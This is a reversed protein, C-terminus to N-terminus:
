KKFSATLARTQYISCATNLVQPLLSQLIGGYSNSSAEVTQSQKQLRSIENELFESKKAFGQELLAVKEKMTSEMTKELEKIQNEKETEMKARIEKINKEQNIKEDELKQQTRRIAEENAKKEQELLAAREKEQELMKEKDTLMNDMRLIHESEAQKQRLYEALVDEAKIGKGPACLYHEQLLSRDECYQKYGGPQAYVGNAIKEEMDASLKKILKNCIEVSKEGNKWCIDEYIKILETMFQQFYTHNEDKFSRKLFVQLSEQQCLSHIKSLEESQIPFKVIKEMRENYHALGDAIAATNESNTLLTVADELCPVAGSNITDLYTKVLSGLVQGSIKIGGQLTKVQSDEYIHECFRHASELFKPDFKDEPVNEINRLDNGSIPRVFTFCKRTPFFTRICERPLNYESVKKGIGQKLQLAHDLYEDETIKKGDLSLDLTFDRVAWVFGPFFQVFELTEDDESKSKVKILETLETVFHLNDVAYQDITGMSNYVLTSSLLVTLAFIWNDNDKDGKKVDGLGETDLLVLCHGPKTPHPICWMWIGKTHSQITSGLSFGHAKGALRNMLYSKGTRYLGVISVVVVPVKINSLIKLGKENLKLKGDATNEILCVPAEMPMVNM